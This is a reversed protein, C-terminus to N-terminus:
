KSLICHAYVSQNGKWAGRDPPRAGRSGRGWHELVAQLLSRIDASTACGSDLLVRFCHFETSIGTWSWRFKFCHVNLRLIQNPLQQARRDAYASTSDTFWTIWARTVKLIEQFIHEAQLNQPTKLSQQCGKRCQGSKLSDARLGIREYFQLTPKYIQYGRKMCRKELGRM